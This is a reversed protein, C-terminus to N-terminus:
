DPAIATACAQEAHADMRLEDHLALRIARDRGVLYTVRKARGILPWDVKYGSTITGEPDGV